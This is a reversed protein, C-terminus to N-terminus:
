LATRAAWLEPFLLTDAVRRLYPVGASGGTGAKAGIMRQVVTLHDFRWRQFAHDMDTLKEALEYCDWHEASHRYVDIWAATVADDAVRTASDGDARERWHQLDPQSLFGRRALLAVAEDYLSPSAREAELLAVIEPRAGHAAITDARRNGLIFELRRYQHSQFGSSTGLRHRFALYEPPTLTALVDWSQILQEFIRAVRAMHKIAPGVADVKLKARSESLERLALKIWLEAAQHITIFLLEDSSDTRPRQASLLLDLELYDGYSMSPVDNM